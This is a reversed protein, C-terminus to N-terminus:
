SKIPLSCFLFISVLLPKGILTSLYPYVIGSSNMSKFEGRNDCNVTVVPSSHPFFFSVSCLKFFWCFFSLMSNLVFCHCFPILNCYHFNTYLISLLLLLLLLFLPSFSLLAKSYLYYYIISRLLSVFMSDLYLAQELIKFTFNGFVYVCLSVCLSSYVSLYFTSLVLVSGFNRWLQNDAGWIHPLRIYTSRKKMLVEDTFLNLGTSGFPKKRKQNSIHRVNSTFLDWLVWDDIGLYGHLYYHDHFRKQPIKRNRKRFARHKSKYNNLRYWVYPAEGCM